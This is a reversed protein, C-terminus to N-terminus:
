LAGASVVGETMRAGPVTCGWFDMGTPTLFEKPLPAKKM